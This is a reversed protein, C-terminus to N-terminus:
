PRSSAKTKRAKLYGIICFLSIGVFFHKLTHGSLQEHFFAFTERDTLEFGKAVSYAVLSIWLWKQGPYSAPFLILILPIALIPFFQVLAYPRLDGQLLNETFMWYFVSTIGLLLLLPTLWLGIRFHVREILMLSFFSMFVVSLPFRDVALSLNSPHWHYFMSGLSALIVGGFFIGWVVREQTHHFNLPKSSSLLSIGWAGLLIILLNSAINAFHPIGFLSRTDAFQHYSVEQSIPPARYLIVVLVCFLLFLIGIKLAYKVKSTM